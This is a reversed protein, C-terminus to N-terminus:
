YLNSRISLPPLTNGERGTISAGMASLPTIIRSMPRSKLSDDGSLVSSFSSGALIGSTLRMTTGSNGCELVDLPKQLGDLGHGNIVVEDMNDAIKLVEDIAALHENSLRKFDEMNLM